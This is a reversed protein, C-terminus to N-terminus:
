PHLLGDRRGPQRLHATGQDAVARAQAHHDHAAVAHDLKHRGCEPIKLVDVGARLFALPLRRPFRPNAGIPWARGVRPEPPRALPQNEHSPSRRWPRPIAPLPGVDQACVVARSWPSASRDSASSAAPGSAWSITVGSPVSVSLSSSLSGHAATRTARAPARPPLTRSSVDDVDPPPSPGAAAGRRSQSGRRSPGAGGSAMIATACAENERISAAHPTGGASKSGAAGAVANFSPVLSQCMPVTMGSARSSRAHAKAVGRHWPGAASRCSDARGFPASSRRRWASASGLSIVTSLASAM